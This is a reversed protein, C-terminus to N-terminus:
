LRADYRSSKSEVEARKPREAAPEPDNHKWKYVVKCGKPKAWPPLKMLPVLVNRDMLSKVEQQTAANWEPCYVSQQAEAHNKPVPRAAQEELAGNRAPKAAPPESPPDSSMAALIARHTRGGLPTSVDQM